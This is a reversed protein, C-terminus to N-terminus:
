EAKVKEKSTKATNEKAERLKQVYVETAGYPLHTISKPDKTLETYVKSWGEVEEEHFIGSYVVGDIECFRMYTKEPVPNLCNKLYNLRSQMLNRMEIERLIELFVERSIEIKQM